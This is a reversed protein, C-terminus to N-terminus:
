DAFAFTFCTGSVDSTTSLEAGAQSALSGVLKMGLTDNSPDEVMGRGDDSIELKTGEGSTSLRLYVNGPQRDSFAHKIANTVVENVLLGVIIARDRPMSLKEISRRITIPKAQTVSGELSKCLEELYSNMDVMGTYHNNRYLYRNVLAYSEVRGLAAQLATLASQNKANQRIQLRLMSAVSTFNNKVRHELERLLTERDVLANQMTSRFLEALVVVFVGAGINVLVRPGDGPDVFAFSGEPPLVFYWAHLSTIILCVLGAQWHGFLTAVLVIPVMLGFPGAGQWLGDILFRLAVGALAFAIGFAIQLASKLPPRTDGILDREALARARRVLSTLLTRLAAVRRFLRKMSLESM